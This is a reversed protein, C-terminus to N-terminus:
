ELIIFDNLLAKDGQVKIEKINFRKKLRLINSNKIGRMKSINGPHVKIKIETENTDKILQMAKEYFIESYVLHGFAPHYPGDLIHDKEFELSSQLGMRIVPIKNETFIEFMNKTRYVAEKLSLPKYFGKEFLKALPSGKIVLTPYIRCFDPKLKSTKKATEIHSKSSEKPLGTMVQLGIEYKYNKLLSVAKITDTTSHGRQSYRLLNDDMSQVGLEITSVPYDKLFELSDQTITDPRTSFRISQVQKTKIFRNCTELLLKQYSKEIGLFNGGYFSIQTYNHKPSKYSLFRNVENVVHNVDPKDIIVGTIAKQNCFVCQHPCAQQPLFIPIILPKKKPM